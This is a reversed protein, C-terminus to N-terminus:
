GDAIKRNKSEISRILGDIGSRAIESAFSGRYNTVLSLNEVVVDYVKWTGGRRAMRYDIAIPQRGPERVVTRVTVEDQGAKVEMPRVEVEPAAGAATQSLAAVYTSVLLGRFANELRKRQPESADRWHAGVALRTMAVFDFHPLVKQEALDHLAKRDGRTQKIVSLVEIATNRVLVDPPTQAQVGPAAFLLLWAAAHAAISIRM